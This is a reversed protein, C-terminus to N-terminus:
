ERGQLALVWGITLACWYTSIAFTGIAVVVLFEFAHGGTNVGTYRLFAMRPLFTGTWGTNVVAWILFPVAFGKIMWQVLWRSTEPKEADSSLRQTLFWGASLFIGAIVLIVFVLISDVFWM